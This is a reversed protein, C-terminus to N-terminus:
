PWMSGALSHFCDPSHLSATQNPNRVSLGAPADNFGIAPVVPREAVRWADVPM